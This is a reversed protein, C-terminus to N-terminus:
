HILVHTASGSSRFIVILITSESRNSCHGPALQPTSWTQASSEHEYNRAATWVSLIEVIPRVALLKGGYLEPIKKLEAANWVYPVIDNPNALRYTSTMAAQIRQAFGRDGATPAAFTALRLTALGNPDWGEGQERSEALWLALAPALAGGKSHGVVWIKTPEQSVELYRKLFKLLSTANSTAVSQDAMPAIRAQAPILEGILATRLLNHVTQDIQNIFIALDTGTVGTLIERLGQYALRAKGAVLATDAAQQETQSVDPLPPSASTLSQLITLGNATSRTIATTPGGAASQWPVPEIPLNSLWDAFSFFNTGRIVIVLDNQDDTRHVVYVASDDLQLPAPSYGIPGWAIKWRGAVIPFTELCRTMEDFVIKQNHANSLNFESGRYSIAVLILLELPDM